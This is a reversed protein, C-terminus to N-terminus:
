KTEGSSSALDCAINLLDKKNNLEPNKIVIGLLANLADGTKEQPVIKKLDSGKVALQKLCVPENNKKIDLFESYAFNLSDSIDRFPESLAGRDAKRIKLLRIFNEEGLDRIYEKVQVRTKPVKKDHVSVLFSVTNIYEKSFRMRKLITKAIEGGAAAHNKFTSDGNEDIKHTLPKGIDHLLMTLRLIPDSEINSVTRCIHGYVDYCHKEGYQPFDFTPKLEPIIVGMVSKYKILVDFVNEGTLLKILEGDIREIAIKSLLEANKIVSDSTNKEINFGLVSSFRLARLIRLADESFRKDPDGVCKIIKNKLDSQGGFIDVLGEGDNYAMANVTFDRRSLDEKIDGSFEVADPRRHDSYVGDIRFTTIEVPGEDCILTVTGHKIGTDVFRGGPFSEKVMKPSASTAIDWDHPKIGMLSDRVSGGAAYAKFGSSILRDIIEKIHKPLAIM